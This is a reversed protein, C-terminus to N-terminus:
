GKKSYGDKAWGSGKLAFAAPQIVREMTAEMCEPNPCDPRYPDTITQVLETECECKPCRYVYTPM